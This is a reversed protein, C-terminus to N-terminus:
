SALEETRTAEGQADFGLFVEDTFGKSVSYLFENSVNSMNKMTTQKKKISTIDIDLLLGPQIHFPNIQNSFEDLQGKLFKLRKEVVQRVEDNQDLVVKQM